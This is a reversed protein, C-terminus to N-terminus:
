DKRVSRTPPRDAICAGNGELACAVLDKIRTRYLRTIAGCNL